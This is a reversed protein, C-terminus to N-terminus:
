DQKGPFDAHGALAVVEHINLMGDVGRDIVMRAREATGLAMVHAVLNALPAQDRRHFMIDLDSGSDDREYLIAIASWDIATM